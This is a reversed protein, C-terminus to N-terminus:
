EESSNNIKIWNCLIKNKGVKRIKTGFCKCTKVYSSYGYKQLNYNRNRIVFVVSSSELWDKCLTEQCLYETSQKLYFINAQM